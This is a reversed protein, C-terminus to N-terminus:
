PRPAEPEREPVKDRTETERAEHEANERVEHAVTERITEEAAPQERALAGSTWRFAKETIFDGVQEVLVDVYEKVVGELYHGTVMGLAESFAARTGELAESSEKATARAALDLDGLRAPPAVSQAEPAAEAATPSETATTREAAASKGGPAEPGGTASAERLTKADRDAIKETVAESREGAQTHIATFLRRYYDRTPADMHAIEAQLARAALVRSRDKEYKQHLLAYRGKVASDLPGASFFSYSLIVALVLSTKGVFAKLRAFRTMLRWGPAYHAIVLVGAIALLTWRGKIKEAYEGAAAVFNETHRLAQEADLSSFLATCATAGLLLVLLIGLGLTVCWLFGATAQALGNKRRRLVLWGSVSLLLFPSLPWAYALFILVLALCAIGAAFLLFSTVAGNNIDVRLQFFRFSRM